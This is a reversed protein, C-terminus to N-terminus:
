LKLKEKTRKIIGNIGKKIEINNKNNKNNKNKKNKNKNNKNM